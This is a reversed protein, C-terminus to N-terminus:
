ITKFGRITIGFFFALAFVGVVISFILGAVMSGHRDDGSSSDSSWYYSSSSWSSAFDGCLYEGNANNIVLPNTIPCDITYDVPGLRLLYVLGGFPHTHHMGNTYYIGGIIGIHSSGIYICDGVGSEWISNSYFSSATLNMNTFEGQTTAFIVGGNRAVNSSFTCSTASFEVSSGIYVVGGNGSISVSNGEFASLEASFYTASDGMAIVGGNWFANNYNLYSQYITTINSAIAGSYSAQNNSINANTMEILNAYIAGGNNDASCGNITSSEIIVQEDTYIAGGNNRSVSNTITTQNLVVYFGQANVTGGNDQSYFGNFNSNTLNLLSDYPSSVIIASTQQIVGIKSRYVNINKINITIKPLSVSYYNLFTSACYFNVKSSNLTYSEINLLRFNASIPYPSCAEFGNKGYVGDKVRINLSKSSTQNNICNSLGPCTTINNSTSCYTFGTNAVICVSDYQITDDFNPTGLAIENTSETTFAVSLFMMLCVIIAVVEFKM